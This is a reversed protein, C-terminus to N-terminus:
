KVIMAMSFNDCINRGLFQRTWARLLSNTIPAHEACIRVFDTLEDLSCAGYLGDSLAAVAFTSKPVRKKGVIAQGVIGQSADLYSTLQGDEDVHDVTFCDGTVRSRFYYARSDGVSLFHCTPAKGAALPNGLVLTITSRGSRFEDSAFVISDIKKTLADSRRNPKFDSLIDKGINFIREGISNAFLGANPDDGIGDCVCIVFGATSSYSNAYDHNYKRCGEDSFHYSLM